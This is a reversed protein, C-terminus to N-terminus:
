PALTMGCQQVLFNSIQDWTSRRANPSFSLGQLATSGTFGLMARTVILGDLTAIIEGDGDIDMSCKTAGTHRTICYNKDTTNSCSGAVLLNGTPLEAVGFATPSIGGPSSFAIGTSAGFTADSTGDTNVRMVCRRNAFTLPDLSTIQACQGVGVIRGDSQAAIDRIGRPENGTTVTTEIPAIVAHRPPAFTADLVGATTLRALCLRSPTSTGCAGGLLIAGNTQQQLTRAQFLYPTSQDVISLGAVGGNGFTQDIAVPATNVRQACVSLFSNGCRGAYVFQDSPLYLVDAVDYLNATVAVAGLPGFASDIAGTSSLRGIVFSLNSPGTSFTAAILLGDNAQEAIRHAVAGVWANGALDTPARFLGNTAFASDISGNRLFQAVCITKLLTQSSIQCNGILLIRGDARLTASVLENSGAGPSYVVKGRQSQIPDNPNFGNTDVSGDTNFRVMCFSNAAADGPGVCRGAVLLKNDPQLLTAAIDTVGTAPNAIAIGGNGYTTDIDGADACAYTAAAFAVLALLAIRTARVSPFKFRIRM